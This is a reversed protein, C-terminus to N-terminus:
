IIRAIEHLLIKLGFNSLLSVFSCGKGKEFMPPSTPMLLRESLDAVLQTEILESVLLDVNARHKVESNHPNSKWRVTVSACACVCVSLRVSLCASVFM